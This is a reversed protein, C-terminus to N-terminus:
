NCEIAATPGWLGGGVSWGMGSVCRYKCFSPRVKGAECSVAAVMDATPVLGAIAHGALAAPGMLPYTGTKLAQKPPFQFTPTNLPLLVVDVSLVLVCM